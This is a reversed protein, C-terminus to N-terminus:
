DVPFSATTPQGTAVPSTFPPGATGTQKAGRLPSGPRRLVQDGNEVPGVGPGELLSDSLGDGSRASSSLEHEASGASVPEGETPSADDAAVGRELDSSGERADAGVRGTAAGGNPMGAPAGSGVPSAAGRKGDRGYSLFLSALVVALAVGLIGAVARAMMARRRVQEPSRVLGAIREYEEDDASEQTPGDVDDALVARPEAAGVFFERQSEVLDETPEQGAEFVQDTRSSGREGREVPAAGFPYPKTEDQPSLEPAQVVEGRASTSSGSPEETRPEKAPEGVAVHRITRVGRDGQGVGLSAGPEAAAQGREHGAGAGSEAGAAIVTKPGIGLQTRGRTDDLARVAPAPPPPPASPIASFPPSDRRETQGLPSLQSPAPQGHFPALGLRTGGRWQPDGDVPPEADGVPAPSQDAVPPRAHWAEASNVLDPNSLAADMSSPEDRDTSRAEAPDGGSPPSERSPEPQSRSARGGSGSPAVAVVPSHRRSPSSAGQLGSLTGYGDFEPVRGAAAPPVLSPEVPPASPRWSHAPESSLKPESRGPVVEDGPDYRRLSPDDGSSPVISDPSARDHPESVKVLGEFYLKSITSLTSLDEFPSEDVVDMLARKGDLLKLIGNLEDPIENLREILVEHDVEFVTDLAPLQELLRGWEDVRRMGEMLLGQTSTPIIDDNTVPRFEVQFAGDTWVLARYVAEEGRLRGLHADVVKGDRFFITAVRGHLDSITAAGSKRSVEFTQLLDVVGMDQLSGSLRTRTPAGAGNMALREQTQRALLLNVRAILERVFIPKTLYDEVGLQLGRVKDETSKESTLFVVPIARYEGNLKLRRVLEYGNLRPLRTDTLVLDPASLEIKALADMGDSATTVSYGAKRLSVELVRVSRPDADVLLLKQKAM